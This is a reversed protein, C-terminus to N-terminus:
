RSKRDVSRPRKKRPVKLESSDLAAHSLRSRVSALATELAILERHAVRSLDVPVVDYASKDDEIRLVRESAEVGAGGEGDVWRVVVGEGALESPWLMLDLLVVLEDQDLAAVAVPAPRTGSGGDERGSAELLIAAKVLRASSECITALSDEGQESLWGAFGSLRGLKELSQLVARYPRLPYAAGALRERHNWLTRVLESARAYAIRQKTKSGSEQATAMAEALEHAMWRTLTDSSPAGLESVLLRGLALPDTQANSAATKASSSTDTSGRKRSRTGKRTAKTDM